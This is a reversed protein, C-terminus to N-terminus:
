PNIRERVIEGGEVAIGFIDVYQVTPLGFFNEKANVYVKRLYCVKGGIKARLKPQGKEDSVLECVMKPVAVLTCEITDGKSQVSYGYAM